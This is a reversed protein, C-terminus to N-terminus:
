PRVPWCKIVIFCHLNVKEEGTNGTKQLGDASSDTCLYFRTRWSGIRHNSHLAGPVNLKKNGKWRKKRKRIKPLKTQSILPAVFQSPLSTKHVVVVLRLLHNCKRLNQQQNRILRSTAKEKTLVQCQRKSLRCLVFKWCYWYYLLTNSIM